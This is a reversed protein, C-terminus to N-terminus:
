NVDDLGAASLAVDLSVGAAVLRSVTQARGVQDRSYSDLRLRIPVELKESLEEELLRATPVLVNMHWRRLSERQATGAGDASFLAPGLGHAALIADHSQQRLAVLETPPKPGLRQQKWDAQPASPKGEGWGSATTELLVARGRAAKLDSRLGALPDDSDEDPDANPDEVDVRPVSLIQALPGGSEDALATETAALLRSTGSAQGSPSIGAYPREPGTAWALFILGPWRVLRSITESPGNLTLHASWSEPNPGGSQFGSNTARLLVVRGRADVEIQHTSSGRVVLDRGVDGLFRASIARKAWDPGEVQAVSLARSLMGAATEIAATSTAGSSGTAAASQYLQGLVGAYDSSRVEPQRKWFKWNIM